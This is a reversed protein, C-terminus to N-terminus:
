QAVSGHIQELYTQRNLSFFVGTTWFLALDCGRIAAFKRSSTRSGMTSPTPARYDTAGGAPLHVGAGDLL